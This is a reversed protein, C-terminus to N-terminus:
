ALILFLRQLQASVAEADSGGEQICEKLSASILTFAATDIAKGVAAIQTIVEDCNRGTELMKVIGGLQGQARNLRKIIEDLRVQDALVHAIPATVKKAVVTKTPM